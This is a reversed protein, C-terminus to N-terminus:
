GLKALTEPPGFQSVWVILVSLVVAVSPSVYVSVAALSSRHALDIIWASVGFIAGAMFGTFLAPTGGIVANVLARFMLNITAQVADGFSLRGGTLDFLVLAFPSLMGMILPAAIAFVFGLGAWILINGTHDAKNTKFYALPVAVICGSVFGAGGLFAALLLPLHKPDLWLETAALISVLQVAVGLAGGLVTVSVILRLDRASPRWSTRVPRHATVTRMM